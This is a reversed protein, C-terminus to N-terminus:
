EDDEAEDAESKGKAPKNRGDSDSKRRSLDDRRNQGTEKDTRNTSKDSSGKTRNIRDDKLDEAVFKRDVVTEDLEYRSRLEPEDGVEFDDAEEFSEQGKAAVKQSLERIVMRRVMEAVPLPKRFNLPVAVPKTDPIERGRDDFKM